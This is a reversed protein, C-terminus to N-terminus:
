RAPIWTSRAGAPIETYVRSRGEVDFREVDAMVESEESKVREMGSVTHIHEVASWGLILEVSDEVVRHRWGRREPNRVPEGFRDMLRPGPRADEAETSGKTKTGSSEVPKSEIKSFSSVRGSDLSVGRAAVSAQKSYPESDPAGRKRSLSSDSKNLFTVKRHDSSVLPEEDAEEDGRVVSKNPVKELGPSSSLASNSAEKTLSGTSRKRPEKERSDLAEKGSSGSVVASTAAASAEELLSDFDAPLSSISRKVSKTSIIGKAACKLVMSELLPM